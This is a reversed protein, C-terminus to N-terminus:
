PNEIKTIKTGQLSLGAMLGKQGFFFAYVGKRLTTSSISTSFGRDLVTLNPATGVEWGASQDLYHLDDQTMFFLVYSFKQAGAQLGWSGGTSNYYGAVSDGKFLVGQGYQAAIIFGGKVISPFVLIGAAHHGLESTGPTSKYL